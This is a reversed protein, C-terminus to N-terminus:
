SSKTAIFLPQNELRCKEADDGKPLYTEVNFGVEKLRDAFDLAYLRVHDWGCIREVEETPMDAPPEFTESRDMDVPVTFFGIGGKKLVRFSEKMAKRDDPIHELIHNSIIVDFHEDDYKIDTMDVHYKAYKSKKIDGSIYGEENQLSRFLYPEPSFHLIKKGSITIGRDRLYLFFMRDRERSSCNPCRAERRNKRMSIFAGKYECCPCYREAKSMLFQRPDRRFTRLYEKFQVYHNTKYEKALM